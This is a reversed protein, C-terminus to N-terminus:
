FIAQWIVALGLVSAAIKYVLPARKLRDIKRARHGALYEWRAVDADYSIGFMSAGDWDLVSKEEVEKRIHGQAVLDEGDFRYVSYVDPHMELLKDDGIHGKHVETDSVAAHPHESFVVVTFKM